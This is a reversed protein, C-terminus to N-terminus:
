KKLYLAFRSKWVWLSCVGCLIVARHYPLARMRIDESPIFSSRVQWIRKLFVIFTAPCVPRLAILAKKLCYCAGTYFLMLFRMMPSVKPFGEDGIAACIDTWVDM